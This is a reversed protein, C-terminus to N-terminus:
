RQVHVEAIEFREGLEEATAALIGGVTKSSDFTWPDTHTLSGTAVAHMALKAATQRVLETRLAFDTDCQITVLAAVSHNHHVYAFVAKAQQRWQSATCSKTGCTCDHPHIRRTRPMLQDVNM